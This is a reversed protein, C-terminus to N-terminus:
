VYFPWISNVFNLVSYDCDDHSENHIVKVVVEFHHDDGNDILWDIEKRWPSWHGNLHSQNPLFKEPDCHLFEKLWNLKIKPSGCSMELYVVLYLWYLHKGFSCCIGKCDILRCHLELKILFFYLFFFLEVNEEKLSNELNHGFDTTWETTHFRSITKWIEMTRFLHQPIFMLSTYCHFWKAQIHKCPRCWSNSWNLYDSEWFM